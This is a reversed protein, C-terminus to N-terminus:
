APRALKAVFVVGAAAAIISGDGRALVTIGAFAPGNGLSTMRPGIPAVTGAVMGPVAGVIMGPPVRRARPVTSAGPVIMAGPAVTGTAAVGAIVWAAPPVTHEADPKESRIM